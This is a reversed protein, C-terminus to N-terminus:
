KVPIIIETETNGPSSVLIKDNTFRIQRWNEPNQAFAGTQVQVITNNEDSIFNQIANRHNHGALILKVSSHRALASYLDNSSEPESAAATLPIHMLIIEVDEESANLQDKLWYLQVKDIYPVSINEYSKFLNYSDDLFIFRYTTSDVKHIQSYYTGNKFCPMSCAWTVRAKGADIQIPANSNDRGFNSRIDHNGLTAYVPTFCDGALQAFQEAQFGLMKVDNTEAEFFDVLDGTAVVMSSNTKDPMTLLFQKLPAQGQSYHRRRQALDQQYFDINFILHLDSIHLISLTDPRADLRFASLTFCLILASVSLVSKM